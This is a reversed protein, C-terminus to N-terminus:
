AIAFANSTQELAIIMYVLATHVHVHSPTPSDCSVILIAIIEVDLKSNETRYVTGSGYRIYLEDSRGGGGGGRSGCCAVVARCCIRSRSRLDFTNVNIMIFMLLHHPLFKCARCREGSPLLPARLDLSSMCVLFAHMAIDPM